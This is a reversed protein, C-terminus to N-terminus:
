LKSLMDQWFQVSYILWGQGFALEQQKTIYTLQLRGPSLHDILGANEVHRFLCQM